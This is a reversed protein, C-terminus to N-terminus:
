HNVGISNARLQHENTKIIEFCTHSILISKWTAPSKPAMSDSSSVGPHSGTHEPPLRFRTRSVTTMSELPSFVIANHLLWVNFLTTISCLAVQHSFHFTELNTQFRKLSTHCFYICFSYMRCTFSDFDVSNIHKLPTSCGIPLLWYNFPRYNFISIESNFNLSNHIVRTSM